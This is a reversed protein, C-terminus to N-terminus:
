SQTPLRYGMRWLLRAIDAELARVEAESLDPRSAHIAEHVATGLMARPTNWSALRIVRRVKGTRTVTVECSGHDKLQPVQKITFENGGLKVRM